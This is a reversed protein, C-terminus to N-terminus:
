PREEAQRGASCANRGNRYELLTCGSLEEERFFRLMEELKAWVAGTEEESRTLPSTGAMLESSHIMFQLVDLGNRKAARLISQWDRLGCSRYIRLVRRRFVLRNLLRKLLTEPLMSFWRAPATDERILPGTYLITLPVELLGASGPKCVNEASPRNSGTPAERYDPGGPGDALGRQRRWDIKPTVSCDVAYGLEALRPLMAGSIGWRAARFSKPAGFREAVEATLAELKRSFWELPLESPFAQMAPDATEGAMFPPTTWPALHVGIEASGRKQWELLANVTAADQLVERALLYTPVFGHRECLRQFGPLAQLNRLSIRGNYQWQNDGETDVTIILKM